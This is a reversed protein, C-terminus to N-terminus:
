NELEENISLESDDEADAAAVMESDAIAISPRIMRSLPPYTHEWKRGM